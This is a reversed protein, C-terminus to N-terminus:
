APFSVGLSIKIWENIIYLRFENSGEQHYRLFDVIINKPEPIIFLYIWKKEFIDLYSINRHANKNFSCDM